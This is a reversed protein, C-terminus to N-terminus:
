AIAHPAGFRELVALREIVPQKMDPPLAPDPVGFHRAAMTGFLANGLPKLHAHDRMIRRYGPLDSDRWPAFWSYQDILAAGTDRAVARVLAMYDGFDAGGSQAAEPLFAYYTQFAVAAGAGRLTAELARLDAEFDARPRRRFCDNGGITVIVVHPRFLLVDEDTRARLNAASEGNIGTNIVWM